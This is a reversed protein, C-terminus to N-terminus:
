DVKIELGYKNCYVNILDMLTPAFIKYHRKSATDRDTQKNNHQEWLWGRLESIFETDNIFEEINFGDSGLKNKTFKILGKVCPLCSLESYWLQSNEDLKLWWEIDFLTHNNWIIDITM